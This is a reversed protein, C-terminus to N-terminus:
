WRPERHTRLLGDLMALVPGLSLDFVQDAREALARWWTPHAELLARPVLFEAVVAGARGAERAGVLRYGLLELAEAHEAAAAPRSFSVTVAHGEPVPAIHDCWDPDRVALRLLAGDPPPLSRPRQSARRANPSSMPAANDM